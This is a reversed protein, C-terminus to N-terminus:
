REMIKLYQISINQVSDCSESLGRKRNLARYALWIPIKDTCSFTYPTFKILSSM